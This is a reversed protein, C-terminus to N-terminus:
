EFTGLYDKFSAQTASIEKIQNEFFQGFDETKRFFPEVYGLAILVLTLTNLIATIFTEDGTYNTGKSGRDSILSTFYNYTQNANKFSYKVEWTNANSSLYAIAEQPSIQYATYKFNGMNDFYEANDQKLQEVETNIEVQSKSFKEGYSIINEISSNLNLTTIGKINSALEDIGAAKEILYVINVVESITENLQIIEGIQINDINGFATGVTALSESLNLFSNSFYIYPEGYGVKTKVSALYNEILFNNLEATQLRLSNILENM